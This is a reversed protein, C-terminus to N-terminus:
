GRAGSGPLREQLTAFDGNLKELELPACATPFRVREDTSVRLLVLDRASTYLQVDHLPAELVSAGNDLAVVGQPSAVIQLTTPRRAQAVRFDLEAALPVGLIMFLEVGIGALDYFGLDAGSTCWSGQFLCPDMVLGVALGVGAMFM